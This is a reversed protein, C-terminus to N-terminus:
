LAEIFRWDVLVNSGIPIGLLQATLPYLDIGAGNSKQVNRFGGHGDPVSASITGELTTSIPQDKYFEARPRKGAFVYMEDDICWPGVDDVIACTMRDGYRLQIWRGKASAAPLAVGPFFDFHPKGDEAIPMLRAGSRATSQAEEHTALINVHWDNM